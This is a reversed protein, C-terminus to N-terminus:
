EIQLDTIKSLELSKDISCCDEKNCKGKNRDVIAKIDFTYSMDWSYNSDFAIKVDLPSVLPKMLTKFDYFSSFPCAILVFCDIYEVFNSLKELTIKGLLLTYFKKNNLTLTRKLDDLVENLGDISLSGVILGFVESEKAKQMLNFRKYFVKNIIDKEIERLEGNHTYL